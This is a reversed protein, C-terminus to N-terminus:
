GRAGANVHLWGRIAMPDSATYRIADGQKVALFGGWAKAQAGSEARHVSLGDVRAIRQLDDVVSGTMGAGM